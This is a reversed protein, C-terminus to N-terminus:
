PGIRESTDPVNPLMTSARPPDGAREPESYGAEVPAPQTHLPFFRVGVAAAVLSGLVGIPPPSPMCWLIALMPSLAPVSLAMYHPQTWPWLVPVALWGARRIGLALLAVVAVVVLAPNGAVSTTDAFREFAASISPLAAIWHAWPLFVVTAMSVLAFGAIARWQREAVLPLLAYIKLMPAVVAFRHRAIVLTTLVAVDPNGNMAADVIPWFCVWWLPLRLSRIALLALGFSGVVWIASVLWEPFSVFPVFALLTPPPAAFPIGNLSVSWPDGGEVWAKAALWYVRADFAIGDPVVVYKTIQFGTSIAFV